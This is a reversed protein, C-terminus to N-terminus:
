NAGTLTQLDAIVKAPVEQPSIPNPKKDKEAFTPKGYDPELHDFVATLNEQTGSALFYCDHLNGWQGDGGAHTLPKLTEPSNGTWLRYLALRAVDRHQGSFNELFSCIGGGTFNAISKKGGNPCAITASALWKQANRDFVYYSVDTTDDPGPKKTVYFEFTEGLKWPWVMHTHSGEGEGGFRNHLTLPDAAIVTPHLTKSTDWISFITRHEKGSNHQIGCYGGAPEGPHWNIGCYYTSSETALVTIQGYVCTCNKNGDANWWLHQAHLNASTLLLVVAAICTCLWHNARSEM